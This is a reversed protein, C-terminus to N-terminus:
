KSVDTALEAKNQGRKEGGGGFNKTANEATFPRFGNSAHRPSLIQFIREVLGRLSQSTVQATCSEQGNPCFSHKALLSKLECSGGV